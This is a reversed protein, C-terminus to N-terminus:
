SVDLFASQVTAQELARLLEAGRTAMKRVERYGFERGARNRVKWEFAFFTRVQEISYGQCRMQAAVMMIQQESPVEVIVMKRGRRKWTYGWPPVRCYREGNARRKALAKQCRVAVMRRQREAFSQIVRVMARCGPNAPDLCVGGLDCFHVTVGLNMWLQLVRDLAAISRGLRDARSAIVADGRRLVQCLKGGAEREHLPQDEGAATDVFVGDLLQGLRQSRHEIAARQLATSEVRVAAISACAYGFTRCVQTM